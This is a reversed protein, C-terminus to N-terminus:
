RHRDTRRRPDAVGAACIRDIGRYVPELKEWALGDVALWSHTTGTRRDISVAQGETVSARLLDRSVVPKLLPHIAGAWGPRLLALAGLLAAAGWNSIGAVIPYDSSVRCWHANGHAVSRAVLEYPISGMGLENGLDGIAIRVWGSGALFLPELSANARSLPQGRAGRAIGDRGPGSREIAIAHSISPALQRWRAALQESSQGSADPWGPSDVLDIPVSGTLGAAAATAAVVRASATDTVLRCRIGAAALGAALLVAGPPGDTECNPPTADGLFFGSIIGIHPEPHRAIDAAAAALNGEVHRALPGINRQQVDEACLAEIEALARQLDDM